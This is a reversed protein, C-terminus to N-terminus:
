KNDTDFPDRWDDQMGRTRAADARTIADQADQVGKLAAQAAGADMLKKDNIHKFVTSALTLFVKALTLLSSLM